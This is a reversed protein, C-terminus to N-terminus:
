VHPLCPIDSMTYWLSHMSHTINILEIRNNVILQGPQSKNRLNIITLSHIKNIQKNSKNIKKHVNVNGNILWLLFVISVMLINLTLRITDSPIM